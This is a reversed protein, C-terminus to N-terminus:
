YSRKDRRRLTLRNLNLLSTSKMKLKLHKKILKLQHRLQKRRTSKQNALLCKLNRNHDRSKM